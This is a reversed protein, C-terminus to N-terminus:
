GKFLLSQRHAKLLDLVALSPRERDYPTRAGNCCIAPDKAFVTRRDWMASVELPLSSVNMGWLIWQHQLPGSWFKLNVLFGTLELIHGHIVSRRDTRLCCFVRFCLFSLANMNEKLSVSLLTAIAYLSSRAITSGSTSTRCILALTVADLAFSSGFVNSVFVWCLVERSVM